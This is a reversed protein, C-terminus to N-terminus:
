GYGAGGIRGTFVQLIDLTDIGGSLGSQDLSTTITQSGSSIVLTANNAFGTADSWNAAALSVAGENLYAIAM